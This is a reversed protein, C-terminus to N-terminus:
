KVVFRTQSSFGLGVGDIEIALEWQGATAVTYEAAYRGQGQPQLAVIQPPAHGVPRSVKALVRANDIPAGAGDRLDSAIKGGRLDGVYGASVRWNQGAQADRQALTRGYLRGEEYPSKGVVASRSGLAFYILVGNVLVVLGMAAVFLWPIWRYTPKGPESPSQQMTM